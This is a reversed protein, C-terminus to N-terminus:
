RILKNGSNSKIERKLEEIKRFDEERKRSDEERKQKKEDEQKLINACREHRNVAAIVQKLTRVYESCDHVPCYILLPEDFERTSYRSDREMLAEKYVDSEILNEGTEVIIWEFPISLFEYQKQKQRENELRQREKYYLFFFYPVFIISGFIVILEILLILAEM